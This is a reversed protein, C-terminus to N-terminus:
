FQIIIYIYNLNFTLYFLLIGNPSNTQAYLKAVKTLVGGGTVVVLSWYMTQIYHLYRRYM